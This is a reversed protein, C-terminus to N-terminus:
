VRSKKKKQNPLRKKSLVNLCAYFLQINDFNTEFSLLLSSITYHSFFMLFIMVTFSRYLSSNCNLVLFTIKFILLIGLNVSSWLLCLFYGILMHFIEWDNHWSPFYLGLWVVPTGVKCDSPHNCKLFYHVLLMFQFKIVWQPLLTLLCKPFTEYNKLHNCSNLLGAELFISLSIFVAM